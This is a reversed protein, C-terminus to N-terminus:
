EMGKAICKKSTLPIVTLVGKTSYVHEQVRPVGWVHFSAVVETRLSWDGPQAPATRTFPSGIEQRPYPTVEKPVDFVSEGGPQTNSPQGVQEWVSTYRLYSIDEEKVVSDSVVHVPGLPCAENEVLHSSYVQVPEKPILQALVFFSLGALLIAVIGVPIWAQRKARKVRPDDRVEKPAKM